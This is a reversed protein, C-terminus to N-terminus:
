KQRTREKCIYYGIIRQNSGDALRLVVPLNINISNGDQNLCVFHNCFVMDDSRYMNMPDYGCISANYPVYSSGDIYKAIIKRKENKQSNYEAPIFAYPFIEATIPQLAASCQEYATIEKTFDNVVPLGFKEICLFYIAGSFYSIRRIDFLMKSQARLREVYENTKTLFKNTNIQKLAKLGIYEAMGEITEVKWEQLVIHPYVKKREERIWIFKQLIEVDSKEYADALYRNENYKKVFNDIDGPDNLLDLDSPFRSEENKRQHCHFMEHVLDYALIELDDNCDLEMNWIAIYGGDFWISTNGRFDQQYPILKGDLCIKSSNYLAFRYRCFGPYLADFDVSDLIQSVNVYTNFLEM